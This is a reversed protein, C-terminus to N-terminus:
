RLKKEVVEKLKDLFADEGWTNVKFFIGYSGGATIASLKLRNDNGILTITLSLRNSGSWSYREYVRVEVRVGDASFSSSDEFSASLSGSMIENHLTNMVNGFNGRLTTEYKAM